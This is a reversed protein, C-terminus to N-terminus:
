RARARANFEEDNQISASTIVTTAAEREDDSAGPEHVLCVVRVRELQPLAVHDPVLVLAVRAALTPARLAIEPNRPEIDREEGAV